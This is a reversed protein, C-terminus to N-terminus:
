RSPLTDQDFASTHITVCRWRLNRKVWIATRRGWYEDPKGGYIAKEHITSWVVATEGYVRVEMETYELVELPDARDGILLLFQREDTREGHNWTGVFEDALIAKAAATDYKLQSQRLAEEAAKVEPIEKPQSLRSDSQAVTALSFSFLVITAFACRMFHHAPRIKAEFDM